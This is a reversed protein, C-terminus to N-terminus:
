KLFERIDLDYKISDIRHIGILYLCYSAVSSGRGVGWVIKHERMVDVLYKLYILLEYMGHQIFLELEIDLRDRQKESSCQAYLWNVIDFEQYELPMFWQLQNARDFEEVSGVPTAMHALNQFRDGNIQRAWNFQEILEANDAFVLELTAIKNTYLRNFIETEDVQVQGYQNINMELLIRYISHPTM